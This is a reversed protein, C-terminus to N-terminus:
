KGELSKKVREYAAMDAAAQADAYKKQQDVRAQYEEDTELRRVNLRVYAYEKGSYDYSETEQGIDIVADAGHQTALEKLLLIAKEITLGDLSWKIDAVNETLYIKNM